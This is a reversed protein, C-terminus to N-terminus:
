ALYNQPLLLRHIVKRNVQRVGREHHDVQLVARDFV